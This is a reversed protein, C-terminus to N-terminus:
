LNDGPYIEKGTLKSEEASFALKHSYVSDEVFSIGIAKRGGDLYEAVDRSLREDGGSHSVGKISKNVDKEYKKGDYTEVTIVGKELSGYMVGKTGYIKTIRHTANAFGHMLLTATIGGEFLMNVTQRDSVDNDSKFVCKGYPNDDDSLYKVINEESKDFGYPVCLSEPSKLYFYKANYPCDKYVCDVCKVAANEPAHEARYFGLSGFSSLKVCKKGIMWYIIDLDHCCKQLIIPSTEESSKWKGRVFSCMYHGFGVNEAQEFSVVDGIAGESLLIKMTMYFPTYRLNHCVIVKKGAAKAADAIKKCEEYSPSVPKELIVDYGLSLAKMTQRYHLRDLTAILAVDARKEKFFEEEDSFLNKEEVGYKERAEKLADASVDLVSVIKVKEDTKFYSCYVGGRNGLGIVAITKM